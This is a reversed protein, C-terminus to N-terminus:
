RYVYIHVKPFMGANTVGTPIYEVFVEGMGM